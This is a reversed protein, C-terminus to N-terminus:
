RCTHLKRSQLGSSFTGSLGSPGVRQEGIWQSLLHDSMYAIMVSMLERAKGGLGVEVPQEVTINGETRVEQVVPEERSRLCPCPLDNHKSSPHIASPVAQWPGRACPNKLHVFRFQQIEFFLYNLPGGQSAGGFHNRYRSVQLLIPQPQQVHGSEQM